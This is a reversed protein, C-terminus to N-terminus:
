GSPTGTLYAMPPRASGPDLAWALAQRAAYIEAYRPNGVGDALADDLRALELQIFTM